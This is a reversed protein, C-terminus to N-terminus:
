APPAICTDGLGDQNFDFCVPKGPESCGAAPVPPSPQCVQTNGCIAFPVNRMCPFMLAAGKREEGDCGCILSPITAPLQARDTIELAGCAGKHVNPLCPLPNTPDTLADEGCGCVFEPVGPIQTVQEPIDDCGFVTKPLNPVCSAAVVGVGCGPVFEAVGKMCSVSPIEGTAVEPLGLQQCLWDPAPKAPDCGPYFSALQGCTAESLFLPCAPKDPEAPLCSPSPPNGAPAATEKTDSESESGGAGLAALLRTVPVCGAGTALTLAGNIEVDNMALGCLGQPTCCGPILVAVTADGVQSMATYAGDAVGDQFDWFDSCHTSLAGPSQQVFCGKLAGQNLEVGCADGASEDCCGPSTGLANKVDGCVEGLCQLAEPEENYDGDGDGNADGDGDGIPPKADQKKDDDGCATLGAAAVSLAGMVAM